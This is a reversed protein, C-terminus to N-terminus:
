RLMGGPTESMMLAKDPPCDVMGESNCVATGALPTQGAIVTHAAGMGRYLLTIEEGVEFPYGCPITHTVEGTLEDYERLRLAPATVVIGAELLPTDLWAPAEKLSM